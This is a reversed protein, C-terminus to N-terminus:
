PTAAAALPSAAVLNGSADLWDIEYYVVRGGIAPINVTCGTACGADTQTDSAYAFPAGSTTCAEQRTTCFFSTPSGNEAYGFRIRVQTSGPAANVTVPVAVFGARNVADQGPWPPLKVAFWDCHVGDAWPRTVFAWSGDPTSRANAFGDLNGNWARWMRGLGRWYVGRADAQDMGAQVDQALDPNAPIACPTNTFYSVGCWQGAGATAKDVVMYLHGQAGGSVCEGAHYAYCYQWPTAASLLSGPGSVDELLYRGAWAALPTRKPDFHYPNSVDYICSTGSCAGVVTSDEQFVQTVSGNENSLVRTDLYWRLENATSAAWQRTSPHTQILGNPFLAASGAFAPPPAASYQYPQGITGPLPGFRFLQSSQDNEVRGPLAGSLQPTIFDGHNVTYNDPMPKQLAADSQAYTLNLAWCAESPNMQPVIPIATHRYQPYSTALPEAQTCAGLFRAFVATITGDANHTVQVAFPKEDINQEGYPNQPPNSFGFADGEQLTLPQSWCRATAGDGGCTAANHPYPYYTLEENLGV